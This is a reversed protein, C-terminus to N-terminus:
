GNNAELNASADDPYALLSLRFDVKRPIGEADLDTHGEEIDAVVWRGHVYGYMDVLSQPEQAAGLERIKKVAFLDGKYDPYVVGSLTLKDEDLGTAQYNPAAGVRDQKAWMFRTQRRVEQYRATAVGFQFDGLQMMVVDTM